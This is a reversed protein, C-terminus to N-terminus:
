LGQIIVSYKLWLLWTRCRGFARTICAFPGRYNGTERFEKEIVMVNNLQPSLTRPWYPSTSQRRRPPKPPLPTNAYHLLRLSRLEIYLSSIPQSKIREISAMRSSNSRVKQNTPKNEFLGMHLWIQHVAAFDDYFRTESPASIHTPPNRTRNSAKLLHHLHQPLYNEIPHPPLHKRLPKLVTRSSDHQPRLRRLYPLHQIPSFFPPPSSKPPIPPSPPASHSAPPSLSTGASTKACHAEIHRPTPQELFVERPLAQIRLPPSFLLRGISTEAFAEKQQRRASNKVGNSSFSKKSM